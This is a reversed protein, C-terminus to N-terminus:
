IYKSFFDDIKFAAQYLDGEDFEGINKSLGLTGGNSPGIKGELFSTRLTGLNKISLEYMDKIDVKEPDAKQTRAVEIAHDILALFESKKTELNNPTM